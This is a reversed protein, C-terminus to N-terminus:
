SAQPPLVYVFISIFHFTTGALVFCHWIAHHYRLKHWLYFVVGATYMLGGIVLLILGGVPVEAILPKLAIIVIWGMILYVVTSIFEFRGTYFLKFVIGFFAIGWVIGFLSWGWGGRLLVVTFPTYTGAILLYISSHDLVRLLSKRKPTKSLHYFTSALYMLVMSVGFVGGALIRSIDGYMGAYILMSCLGAISLVAGIAHTIMNAFEENDTYRSHLPIDM